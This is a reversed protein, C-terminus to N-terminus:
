PARGKKGELAAKAESIAKAFAFCLDKDIGWVYNCFRCDACNEPFEMDPILVAM